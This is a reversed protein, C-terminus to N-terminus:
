GGITNLMEKERIMVLYKSYRDWFTQKEEGSWRSPPTEFVLPNVKQLSKPLIEAHDEPSMTLMTLRTLADHICHYSYDMVAEKAKLYNRMRQYLSNHLRNMPRPMYICMEPRGFIKGEFSFVWQAVPLQSNNAILIARLETELESLERSYISCMWADVLKIRESSM